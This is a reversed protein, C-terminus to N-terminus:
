PTVLGIRIAARTLGATDFINLNWQLAMRHFDVTKPSIGLNLAIGQTTESEAIMRWVDQQRQSMYKWPGLRIKGENDLLPYILQRHHYSAHSAPRTAIATQM